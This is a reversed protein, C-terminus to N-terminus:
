SAALCPGHVLQPAGYTLKHCLPVLHQEEPSPNDGETVPAQTSGDVILAIM